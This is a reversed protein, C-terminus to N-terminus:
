ADDKRGALAAKLEGATAADVVGDLAILVLDPRLDDVTIKLTM